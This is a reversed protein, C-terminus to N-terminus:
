KNNFSFSTMDSVISGGQEFLCEVQWFYTGSTQPQIDTPLTLKVDSTKQEWIIDGQANLLLFTYSTAHPISTWRFELEHPKVMSRNTPALLRLPTETLNIAPERTNFPFNSVFQSHDLMVGLVILILVVGVFQYVPRPLRFISGAVNIKGSIANKTKELIETIKAGIGKETPLLGELKLDHLFSELAVLQDTCVFCESLHHYFEQRKRAPFKGELFSILQADEFCSSTDVNRDLTSSRQFVAKLEGYEKMRQECEKCSQLHQKIEETESKNLLDNQYAILRSLTLCKM